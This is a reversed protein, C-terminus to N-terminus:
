RLANILNTVNPTGCGTCADWGTKAVYGSNNGSTVDHFARNTSNLKFKSYIIPNMFGLNRGLAENMVATIGAWFPAVASTGGIVYVGGDVPVLIGSVPDANGAVDPVGRRNKVLGMGAQFNPMVFKNSYGGGTAGYSDNWTTESLYSIGNARLTTGGCSTANPCSGPFDVNLGSIGDSAGSDGSAVFVSINSSAASQIVNNMSTIESNSWYSEPAGWSISIINVRDTIAKNIAAIFGNTTNPAMYVIPTIGKAVGIAVTLDLMVEMDDSNATTPNNTAGLVSVFQVTPVSSWGYSKFFNNLDAQRFGGGLEIFAVKQNAGTYNTPVNYISALNMPTYNVARQKLLNKQDVESFIRAYHKFDPKHLSM